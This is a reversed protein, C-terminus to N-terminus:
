PLDCRRSFDAADNSADGTVGAFVQRMYQRERLGLATRNPLICLQWLYRPYM